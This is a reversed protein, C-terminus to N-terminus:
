DGSYSTGNFGVYRSEPVSEDEWPARNLYLGRGWIYYFKLESSIDPNNIVHFTAVYRIKYPIITFYDKDFFFSDYDFKIMTGKPLEKPVKYYEKVTEKGDTEVFTIKRIVGGAKVSDQAKDELNDWFIDDYVKVPRLLRLEKHLLDYFPKEDSRSLSGLTTPFLMYVCGSLFGSVTIALIYFIRRM